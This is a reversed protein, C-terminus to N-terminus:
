VAEVNRHEFHNRNRPATIEGVAEQRVRHAVHTFDALLLDFLAIALQARAVEGAFAAQFALVVVDQHAGVALAADDDVADALFDVM